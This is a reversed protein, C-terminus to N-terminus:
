WLWPRTPLTMLWTFSSRRLQEVVPHASPTFGIQKALIVLGLTGRVGVKLSQACRRADRDDLIAECEPDTLALALVSSEGAGLNWLVVQPPTPLSPVIKLWTTRLIERYVPAAAGRAGVEQLVADPVIIEPVGARLL